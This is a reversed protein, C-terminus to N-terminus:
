DDRRCTCDKPGDFCRLCTGDVLRLVREVQEHTLFTSLSSVFSCSDKGVRAESWRRVEYAARHQPDTDTSRGARNDLRKSWDHQEQDPEKGDHMSCRECSRVCWKNHRTPTERPKSEGDETTGPDEPADFPIEGDALWTVDDRNRSWQIQPRLDRGFAKRCNGDCVFNVPKGFMTGHTIIM